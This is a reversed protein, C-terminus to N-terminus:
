PVASPPPVVHDQKPAVDPAASESLLQHDARGSFEEAIKTYELSSIDHDQTANYGDRPPLGFSEGIIRNHTEVAPLEDLRERLDFTESDYTQTVYAGVLLRDYNPDDKYHKYQEEFAQRVGVDAIQDEWVKIQAWPHISQIFSNLEAGNSVENLQSFDLGGITGDKQYQGQYEPFDSLFRDVVDKLVGKHDEFDRQATLSLDAWHHLEDILAGQVSFPYM